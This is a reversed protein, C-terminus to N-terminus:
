RYTKWAYCGLVIVCLGLFVLSGRKLAGVNFDGPPKGPIQQVVQLDNAASPETTVSSNLPKVKEVHNAIETANKTKNATETANKTKDIVLHSEKEYTKIVLPQPEGEAHQTEVVKAPSQLDPNEAPVHFGTTDHKVLKLPSGYCLTVINIVVAITYVFTKM